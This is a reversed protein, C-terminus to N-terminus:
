WSVFYFSIVKLQKFGPEFQVQIGLLYPLIKIQLKIKNYKKLPTKVYPYMTDKKELHM